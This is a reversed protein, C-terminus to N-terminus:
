RLFQHLVEGTGTNFFIKRGRQGGTNEAAVEIGAHELHERVAIVNAEGILHDGMASKRRAFMNAGGFLKAEIKGRSVGRDQFLALMAPLVHGVYRLRQQDDVALASPRLPQPLTAHCIAALGHRRDFMTVAVCSGLVTVVWQPQRTVLLAGPSLHVRPLLLPDAVNM